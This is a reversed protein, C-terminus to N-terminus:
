AAEQWPAAFTREAARLRASRARPNRAIEADDPRLAAKTLLRFSPTVTAREPLHRSPRAARDSRARLFDKVMRDELSHFSVVALRGGPALVREAAALGRQLEGLEDNIYIRLAQFTRTAPDIGDRSGPVVSRVIEALRTTTRIPARQRADIIAQAVRRARKEEGYRVIIDALLAEGAGNVVEAASLGGAGMRMDLPGEVRFSFGRAPDDLQLSSVGLDLVIGGDVRDIDHAGLLAQLDGFRGEIVALRQDVSAALRRAAAVAVPDRDIAIVRCRAAALLASTYGGGGLTGDVYLADARPEILELVKDLLVPVHGVRQSSNADIM